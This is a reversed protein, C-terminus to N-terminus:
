EGSSEILRLITDYLKQPEIPKSLHATMGAKKTRDRDETFADATMAIIPVTGADGRPLSRIRRTAELGGMVPMRVDMLLADYWGEPAAAFQAVAEAGDRAVNVICGRRELLRQAVVVNLKNDEVLLIRCGTLKEPQVAEPQQHLVPTGREVYLDVVFETGKGPQSTAHISGGMLDVLNKVIALGLGTGRETLNTDTREQTFPEFLHELFEENMGIGNDRVSCRLGYKGDQDPIHEAVFEVRGGPPTFKVANSLLNFYIQNYRLKDVLICEIDCHMQFTFTIQKADMLPRIVTYLNKRFEELTLPEPHLEIRNNEIKSFDLIDNILGLLFHSSTDINDLYEETEPPNNEDKALEVMGIIANMPTRIDHSMRALFDSKVQSAKATDLLAQELKKQSKQQELFINNVDIRTMLFTKRSQDILTFQMQKRRIEGNKERMSFNFQYVAGDGIHKLVNEIRCAEVVRDADEPCVRQRILMENRAEFPQTELFLREEMTVAYDSASNTSGDVVVFFDYDTKAATEMVTQMVKEQTIDNVVVFAIIERTEPNQMLHVNYKIWFVKQTDFLRTFEISLAFEGASFKSMLSKRNFLKQFQRKGGPHTIAEATKKFYVDADNGRILERTVEFLSSGDIITNNTLDIKLSNLTTSQMAARYSMEAKFKQEAEKERTVDRGAGFAKLPIGSDSFVTTYTVRECWWGMEDNTKYWIDETIQKEGRKLRDFISYFTKISDERVYGHEITSAIYHEIVFCNQKIRSSNSVVILSDKQIDYEWINIGSSKIATEYRVQMELLSQETEKTEQVDSFVSHFMPKGSKDESYGARLNIWRPSGAKTKIRYTLNIGSKHVVAERVAAALLPADEEYTLAMADDGCIAEREERSYGSLACLGDSYYRTLVKEEAIEYLAIGGPVTNVLAQYSDLADQTKQHLVEMEGQVKQMRQKNEREETVDEIYEVHAHIGNWNTLKGRMQYTRGDTPYVFDRQVFGDSRMEEMKCFKCPSTRDFLVEYCKRNAYVEQEKGLLRLGTRNMYLLDYTQVDNVYIANEEENILNDYLQAMTISKQLAAVTAEERDLGSRSLVNKVRARVIRQDATKTIFDWAGNELAELQYSEEATVAIVPIGRYPSSSIWKLVALGDMDPMMIDLLIVSLTEGHTQIIQIAELGGKAALVTFEASFSAAMAERNAEVDDVILMIPRNEM